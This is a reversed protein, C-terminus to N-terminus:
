SGGRTEAVSRVAQRARHALEELDGGAFADVILPGGLSVAICGARIWAPIAELTVGGSPLTQVDPLPGALQRVYDSGVTSAPFIKM